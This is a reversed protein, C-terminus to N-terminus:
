LFFPIRFPEREVNRNIEAEAAFFRAKRNVSTSNAISISFRRCDMFVSRLFPFGDAM